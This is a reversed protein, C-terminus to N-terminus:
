AAPRGADPLGRATDALSPEAGLGQERYPRSRGALGLDHLRRTRYRLTREPVDPFLRGLQDQRVVRHACLVALVRRDLDTLAACGPERRRRRVVRDRGASRSSSMPLVGPLVNAPLFARVRCCSSDVSSSSLFLRARSRGNSEGCPLPIELKPTQRDCVVSRCVWVLWRCSACFRTSGRDVGGRRGLRFVWIQRGTKADVVVLGLGPWVALCNV